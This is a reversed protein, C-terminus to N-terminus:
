VMHFLKPKKVVHMSDLSYEDICKKSCLGDNTNLHEVSFVFMYVNCLM